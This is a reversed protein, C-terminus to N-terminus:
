VSVSVRSKLCTETSELESKIRLHEYILDTQVKVTGDDSASALWKGDPSFAVSRVAQTHGQLVLVLVVQGKLPTECWLERHLVIM